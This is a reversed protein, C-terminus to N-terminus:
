RGKRRTQEGDQIEEGAVREGFCQLFQWDLNRGGPPGSFGAM